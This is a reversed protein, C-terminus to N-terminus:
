NDNFMRKIQPVGARREKEHLIIHLIDCRPPNVVFSFMFMFMFMFRGTLARDDDKFVALRTRHLAKFVRLVQMSVMPIM